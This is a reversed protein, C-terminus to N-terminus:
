SSTVPMRKTQKNTKKTKKKKITVKYMHINQKGILDKISKDMM